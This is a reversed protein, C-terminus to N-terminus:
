NIHFWFIPLHMALNRESYYAVWTTICHFDTLSIMPKQNLIYFSNSFFVAHTGKVYVGFKIKRCHELASIVLFILVNM